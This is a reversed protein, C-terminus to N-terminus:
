GTGAQDVAFRPSCNWPKEAIMLEVDIPFARQVGFGNCAPRANRKQAIFVKM